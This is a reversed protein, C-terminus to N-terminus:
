PVETSNGYVCYSPNQEFPPDKVGKKMLMDRYSPWNVNPDAPRLYEEPVVRPLGLKRESANTNWPGGGGINVGQYVLVEDFPRVKSEKMAVLLLRDAQDRTCGQSWYLYDHLVAARSYQGHPSLGLSWLSQPISAFDTVFGRPVVIRESTSGIIYSMDEVTIWFANDGFARVAPSPPVQDVLLLSPYSRGFGALIPVVVACIILTLIRLHQNM